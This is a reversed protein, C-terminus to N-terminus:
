SSSRSGADRPKIGKQKRTAVANPTLKRHLGAAHKSGSEVAELRDRRPAAEPKTGAGATNRSRPRDEKLYRPSTLGTIAGNPSPAVMAKRHCTGPHRFSSTPFETYGANPTGPTRIESKIGLMRDSRGGAKPVSSPSSAPHRRSSLFERVTSRLPRPTLSPGNPIRLLVSRWKLPKRRDGLLPVIHFTFQSQSAFPTFLHPLPSVRHLPTQLQFPYITSLRGTSLHWNM